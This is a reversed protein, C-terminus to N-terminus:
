KKAGSRTCTEEDIKTWQGNMQMEGMHVVEDNGKKTFTDRAGSSQGGMTAEGSWVMKDGDWGTSEQKSTGGFSDFGWGDFKKDKADRGWVFQFRYPMPNAATKNEDYRGSVWFGGPDTAIKVTSTTDHAPGMPTAEAKGKCQWTGVFYKLQSMEADPKPAAPGAHGTSAPKSGPAKEGPGAQPAAALPAALALAVLSLTTRTMEHGGERM